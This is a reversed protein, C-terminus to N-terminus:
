LLGSYYIGSVDREQRCHTVVLHNFNSHYIQCNLRHWWEYYGEQEGRSARVQRSVGRFWCITGLVLEMWGPFSSGFIGQSGPKRSKMTGYKTKRQSTGVSVGGQEFLIWKSRLFLGFYAALGLTKQDEEPTLWKLQEGLSTKLLKRSPQNWPPRQQDRPPLVVGPISTVNVLCCTLKPSPDDSLVPVDAPLQSSAILSGWRCM